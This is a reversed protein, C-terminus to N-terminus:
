AGGAYAWKSDCMAAAKRNSSWYQSARIDAEPRLCGTLSKDILLMPVLVFEAVRVITDVYLRITFPVLEVKIM